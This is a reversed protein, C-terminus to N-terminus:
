FLSAQKPLVPINGGFDGEIKIIELSAAIRSLFVKRVEDADAALIVENQPHNYHGHIEQEVDYPTKGDKARVHVLLDYGNFEHPKMWDYWGQSIFKSARSGKGLPHTTFGVKAGPKGEPHKFYYLFAIMHKDRLINGRWTGRAQLKAKVEPKNMGERTALQHKEKFEDTSTAAEYRAKAEPTSRGASVKKGHERRGARGQEKWYARNKKRLKEKVAPNSQAEKISARLRANTEPEMLAESVKRGHERRDEASAADWREKQTKSAKERRGPKQWSKIHGERRRAKVEPRDLAERVLEGHKKKYDADKHREKSAAAIKAVVEPRNNTARSIQKKKFRAEKTHNLKGGTHHFDPMEEPCTAAAVIRYYDRRHMPYVHGLSDVKRDDRSDEREDGGPLGMGAPGEAEAEAAPHGGSKQDDPERNLSQEQESNEHM